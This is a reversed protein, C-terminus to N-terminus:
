MDKIGEKRLLEKHREVLEPFNRKIFQRFPCDNFGFRRALSKVSETTTAYLRIAESYKEMSRRSVMGGTDTRVMGQRAYLEPEHEKLYSRFGEPQLGFEAAVRATPLGSEKLRRIAEAYKAKTAPNYKRVKSWDVPQGEEYPINKRRCILDLHWRQLHEYFGKRSVGTKKAIQAASMPTTSYLRVAEAYKDATERSPAHVTGRGTIEGKRQNRLAKERIKIRRKVLEKHYYLLHQELGTYSVGCSDAAEQVTVYPSRRLLKVAEAYQEKCARRTGRLLRDGIGLWERVKERWEIIEPYHTRLQRGLNTGELGFKRAIQSVNCEIHEMSGCAEIADKYKARTAPLQGRLQGLKIHGAEEKSCLIAYRALVLERHYKTLYCRFGSETVECIRCIERGSLETSAYMEIARRYKEETEPRVGRFRNSEKSDKGTTKM